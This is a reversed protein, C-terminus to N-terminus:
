RAIVDFGNRFILDGAPLAFKWLKGGNDTLYVAGDVVIPSQWHLNGVHPSSWLVDGTSPTRASVCLGGDACPGATYLVGNAVVPSTSANTAGAKTWRAILQPRNSGDLGLQLGSLGSGNGAFVWTSQDSPDVWVAPQERMRDSPFGNHGQPVDILQIEGGVHAPGGQGSMDDLDILRLKGDKGAQLGLHAIASGAPVPLIAPSVSGLDVDTDQLSQYNTPTYSDLPLGGGAGTGDPHLALVSDGWHFGGTNANFTGNGTTIYVRNTAADFTAGGRGWIGSQRGACDDTGPTGNLVFHITRDSCMANFVHQTGSALDISVLHGQYDGGDGIYGDTVVLLFTSAGSHAITLGGAGKEVGTKLTIPQPWGGGTIEAGSGIAYKHVNGDVGYSYVYQRGPDIAPSATTPQPGSTAQHWVESGDAADIAMLRGNKGLLFLLDKTGAPTAIGAAYVPASDVSTALAAGGPWIAALQAVNGPALTTEAPNFGRHAADYGFQAWDAAGAGNGIVM